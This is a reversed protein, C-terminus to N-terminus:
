KLLCWVMFVYSPTDLLKRVSDIVFYISVVIFMWQSALNLTIAAYSVLSVWLIGICSWRTACLQVMQLERELRGIRFSKTVSAYPIISTYSCTNKIQRSHNAEEGLQKIWPVWQIPSQTPGLTPRSVATAFLFIGQRQRLDFSRRGAPLRTVIGVSRCCSWHRYINITTRKM